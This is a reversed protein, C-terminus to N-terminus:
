LDALLSKEMADNQTGDIIEEEIRMATGAIFMTRFPGHHTLKNWFIDDRPHTHRYLKADNRAGRMARVVGRGECGVNNAYYTTTRVVGREYLVDDNACCRTARMVRRRECLVGDSAGRTARM